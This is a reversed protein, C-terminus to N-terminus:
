TTVSPVGHAFLSPAGEIPKRKWQAIATPHVRHPSGLESLTKIGRVAELAVRAKFEDAHRKRKQGM